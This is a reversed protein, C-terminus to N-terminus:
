QNRKNEQAQKKDLWDDIRKGSGTFIENDKSGSFQINMTKLNQKRNWALFIKILYYIVILLLLAASITQIPFSM